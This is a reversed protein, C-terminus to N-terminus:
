SISSKRGILILYKCDACECTTITEISIGSPMLAALSERDFASIHEDYVEPKMCGEPVSIILYGNPNILEAVRKLTREPLTLHELTEILVCVDFRRNVIGTPLRPLKSQFGEFGKERVLEISVTSIDLGTCQCSKQFALLEMFRGTGCGLDLVKSNAPLFRLIERRLLRYKEDEIRTYEGSKYRVNWYDRTNPNYRGYKLLRAIGPSIRQV